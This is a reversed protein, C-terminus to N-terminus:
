RLLTRPSPWAAAVALILLLVSAPEPVPPTLPTTSTSSTSRGFNARWTSYQAPGIAGGDTDNPLAGAPAGVNKRWVVYDAADVIGDSDYDGPIGAAPAVLKIVGGGGRFFSFDFPTGDAFVGTINGSEAEVEGLPLNFAEERGVIEISAQPSNNVLDNIGGSISGGTITVTAAAGPGIGIGAELEGTISGGAVTLDANGFLLVGVGSGVITGGHIETTSLAGLEIARTNVNSNEIVGDYLEFRSSGQVLVALFSGQIEGGTMTVRSSGRVDVSFVSPFPNGTGITATDQIELTTPTGSTSDAIRLVHHDLASDTGAVWHAGDNLVRARVTPIEGSVVDQIYGAVASVRTDVATEGFTSNNSPFDPDTWVSTAFSTVGAVHYSQTTPDLVFGPSGSDGVSPFVEDAGFGAGPIGIFGLADREIAGNDFDYVLGTGQPLFQVNTLGTAAFAEAWDRADAEYANFGARKLNDVSRQQLDGGWGAQGYGSKVFFSLDIEDDGTYIPYRPASAPANQALELVAIDYGIFPHFYNPHLSVGAIPISQDGNAGALNFRVESGTGFLDIQQAVVRGPADVITFLHAATLVFRDAILAGSGTFEFAEGSSTITDVVIQVVGDTDLPAAGQRTFPEGPTTLHTGYGDATIIAEAPAAIVLWAAITLMRMWFTSRAVNKM